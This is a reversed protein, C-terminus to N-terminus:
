VDELAMLLSARESAAVQQWHRGTLAGELAWLLNLSAQPCVAKTKAYAAVAGLKRLQAESTIGAQALMALSKPGINKLGSAGSKKPKVAGTKRQRLACDYAKRAWAAMQDSEDLVEPPAQYYKLHGVKGKFEYTFPGLGLRTFDDVSVADAKFYLQEQAILAFMLGQWYVGHGGFMPKAQVPAFEAMREVVHDVFGQKRSSANKDLM